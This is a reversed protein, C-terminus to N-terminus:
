SRAEGALFGIRRHPPETGGMAMFAGFEAVTRLRDRSLQGAAMELRARPDAPWRPGEAAPTLSEAVEAYLAGIPVRLAYAIAVLLETSVDKRGREVESLHAPSCGAETAIASLTRGSAERHGRLSAGLARRLEGATESYAFPM